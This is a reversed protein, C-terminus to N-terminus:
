EEILDVFKFNVCDVLGRNTLRIEPICALSLGSMTMFPSPLDCGLEKWSDELEKVLKDQLALPRESMLGAIELPVLGIVKGGKVAVLGGGCEILTNVALTMDGDNDGIVLLNHADHAVTQALAGGKIGFGKVFGKGILGTRHHREFVVAKLIDEKEDAKLEGDTATMTLVNDSTITRGGSVGIVHVKHEGDTANIKLADETIKDLHVTHKADDPYEYEGFKVTLEGDKAVQEGDIFVDTVHCKELDDILVMDACKSPAISGLEDGMKFCEATNITVMTIATVPDIGEEIARRVVHDLHGKKTLTHPHSDDTVLCAFRTDVKNDRIAPVLNKLDHWASGERMQAYMGLRMKAIADEERVSEHCCRAGSAIYANLGKGTEPMSYHGTVIKDAKYTEGIIAHTEPNAYLIGPFNMMEGLAVSEDWTMAKEIDKSTVSAGTDEFGPVAPVCSPVTLMAKLPTRKADGLMYKVGDLGLVNCIEHPDFYIGSTGHAIVAKAYEGVTMMSSEVHMHGDLFSPALYKGEAKIVTTNEGICHKCDGVMAIRGMSVAVDVNNLIEKTCVNILKAGLIVLEAPM